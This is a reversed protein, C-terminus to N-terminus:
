TTWGTYNVEVRDWSHPKDKGKGKEILKSFLGTTSKQADKPAAAVDPPAPIPAEGPTISILEVDFVLMGQPSGPRGKYALAEPIWLRRKEGVTMLQLGETWGPIVGKVEFTAATGRQVSSDFMKGDTTWGTYHVTVKDYIKPKDGGKGPALVKSALGSVTKEADAPPAAVDSPAAITAAEDTKPKAEGEVGNKDGGKEAQPAQESPKLVAEDSPPPPSAAKCAGLAAMLTFAVVVEHRTM